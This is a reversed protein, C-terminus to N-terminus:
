GGLLMGQSGGSRLFPPQKTVLEVTYSSFHRDIRYEWLDVEVMCLSVKGEERAVAQDMDSHFPM